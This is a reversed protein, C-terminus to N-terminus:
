ISRFINDTIDITKLLFHCEFELVPIFKGRMSAVTSTHFIPVPFYRVYTCWLLRHFLKFQGYGHCRTFFMCFSSPFAYVSSKFNTGQTSIQSKTNGRSHMRALKEGCVSLAIEGLHIHFCICSIFSMGDGAQQLKLVLACNAKTKSPVRLSVWLSKKM